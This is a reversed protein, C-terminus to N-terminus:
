ALKGDLVLLAAKARQRPEDENLDIFANVNLKVHREKYLANTTITGHTSAILHNKGTSKSPAPNELPVKIVLHKREVSVTIPM